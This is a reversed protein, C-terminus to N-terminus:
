AVNTKQRSIKYRAIMHCSKIDEDLDKFTRHFQQAYIIYKIDTTFNLYEYRGLLYTLM